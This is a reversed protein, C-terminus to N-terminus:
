FTEAKLRQQELILKYVLLELRKLTRENQAIYDFAGYKIAMIATDQISEGAVLVVETNPSIAKLKKMLQMSDAATIGVFDAQYNLIVLQPHQKMSELCDVADTFIQIDISYDVIKRELYNKLLLLTKLDEDVLFVTYVLPNMLLIYNLPYIPTFCNAYQM